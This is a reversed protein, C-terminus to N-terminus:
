SGLFRRCLEVLGKPDDVYMSWLIEQINWGEAKARNRKRNDRERETRGFHFALGDLEWAKKRRPWALDAQMIFSGDAALIRHELVPAPLDHDALLNAILRSFDSLPVTQDGLRMELLTRLKGCGDRGKRSHRSLTRVLDPWTTLRQRIASEVLRELRRVTVVAGCDLLTRNIGTVPIGRIATEDRLHWQTTRHVHVGHVTRRTSQAIQIEPRPQHHLGLGWLAAACRHSAVGGAALCGALLRSEWTPVVAAHRYVSPHERVWTGSRLRRNIQDPSLGAVLAQPRTILGHQGQFMHDVRM